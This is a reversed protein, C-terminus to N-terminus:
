QPADIGIIDYFENRLVPDLERSLFDAKARLWELCTAVDAVDDNMLEYIDLAMNRPIGASLLLFIRPDSAGAELFAAIDKEFPRLDHREAMVEALIDCYCKLGRAYDYKLSSELIDDLEDIMENVFEKTM